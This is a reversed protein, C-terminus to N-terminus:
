PFIETRRSGAWNVRRYGDLSILQGGVCGLWLLELVTGAGAWGVIAGPGSTLSRQPQHGHV